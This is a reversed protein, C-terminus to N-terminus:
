YIQLMLFSFMEFSKRLTIKMLRMIIKSGNLLVLWLNMKQKEQAVPFVLHYPDFLVVVLWNKAKDSGPNSIAYILFARFAGRRTLQMAYNDMDAERIGDRYEHVLDVPLHQLLIKEIRQNMRVPTTRRKILAPERCIAQVDKEIRDGNLWMDNPIYNSFSLDTIKLCKRCTELFAVQADANHVNLALPRNSSMLRIGANLRPANKPKNSSGSGLLRPRFSPKNNSM